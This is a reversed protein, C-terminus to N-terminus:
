LLSLVALPRWSSSFVQHCALHAVLADFGGSDNSLNLTVPYTGFAVAITDKDKAIDIGAVIPTTNLNPLSMM